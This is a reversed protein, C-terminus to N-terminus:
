CKKTAEFKINSFIKNLIFPFAITKIMFTNKNKLSSCKM